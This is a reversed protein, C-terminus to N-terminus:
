EIRVVEDAFSGPGDRWRWSGVFPHGGEALAVLLYSRDDWAAARRDTASPRPPGRPHSHYFGVVEEGAADVAELHALLDAPAIEYAREPNGAANAARRTTRVVSPDGHSGVLLGCAEAPADDLAHDFVADYAARRLRIM